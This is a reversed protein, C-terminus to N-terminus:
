PFGHDGHCSDWLELLARNVIDARERHPEHAAGAVRLCTGGIREAVVRGCTLLAEGISARYHPSATEWSGTIILKPWPASRLPDLSIEADWSPRERMATRAARLHNATVDPMAAGMSESSLRLYEAPTLSPLVSGVAHRLRRLAMAVTPDADACRLAAPEILTLSLVADPRRGAALMAVVGGYSHGVVHAKGVDLLEVVDSADIEYDSRDIDPSSGFGRRDLVLLRYREALSRQYEFCATGWTMTGHILIVSDGADETDDWVTVHVVV